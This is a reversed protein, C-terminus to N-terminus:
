RNARRQPAPLAKRPSDLRLRAQEESDKDTAILKMINNVAAPGEAAITTAAALGMLVASLLAMTKGFSLRHSALEAVFDDLKTDLGSKRVPSL